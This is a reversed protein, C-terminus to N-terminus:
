VSYQKDNLYLFRSSNLKLAHKYNGIRISASIGVDFNSLPWIYRHKGCIVRQSIRKYMLAVALLKSIATVSFECAVFKLVDRFIVQFFLRYKNCILKIPLSRRQLVSRLVPLGVVEEAVV